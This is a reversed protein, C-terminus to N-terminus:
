EGIIDVVEQRSYESMDKWNPGVKVTYSYNMILDYDFVEKFMKPFDTFVKEILKFVELLKSDHIDFCMSDHVTNIFKIHEHAPDLEAMVMNIIFPVIDGTAFGQVPYNKMQTSSPEWQHSYDSLYIGAEYKRGTPTLMPIEVTKSLPEVSQKNYSSFKKLLGVVSSIIAYKKYCANIFDKAEKVPIWFQEAMNNAGSGYQLQFTMVKAKRREEDTVDKPAKKLWVAANQRHIDVGSNLEKVLVPDQTLEALAVVELQKCDVEILLGDEGYRSVFLRKIDSM